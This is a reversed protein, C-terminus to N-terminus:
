SSLCRVNPTQGIAETSVIVKLVVPDETEAIVALFLRGIHEWQLM